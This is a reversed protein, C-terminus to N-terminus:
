KKSILSKKNCLSCLPSVSNWPPYHYRGQEDSVTGANKGIIGVNAFDVALRSGSCIIRGNIEQASIHIFFFLILILGTIKKDM